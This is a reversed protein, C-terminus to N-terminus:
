YQVDVVVLSHAAVLRGPARLVELIVAALTAVGLLSGSVSLPLWDPPAELLHPQAVFWGASLAFAGAWCWILCNLLTQVFLRRSVRALQRQVPSRNSRAM